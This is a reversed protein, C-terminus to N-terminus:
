CAFLQHHYLCIYGDRRSQRENNLLNDNIAASSNMARDPVSSVGNLTGGSPEDMWQPDNYHSESDSYDVLMSVVVVM